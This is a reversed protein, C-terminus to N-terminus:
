PKIKYVTGLGVAGGSETTGYLYGGAYIVGANPIAGDAGGTFNHLITEGGTKLDISYLTGFGSTGGDTTTGYLAGHILLLTSAPNAGDSGGQFSYIVTETGTAKDFKFVTGAGAPGGTLTTGYLSGHDVLGACPNEGDTGGQFSYLIRTKGTAPNFRFITGANASGGLQTTGYVFKGVAILAGSPDVGDTGTGFSHLVTEVGSAPDIKYLAGNYSSTLGGQSVGYFENNFSLLEGYPFAADPPAGFSYVLSGSGTAPDVSFVSGWGGAGNIATGYLTNNLYILGTRPEKGVSAGLSYLLSEAGTAPNIQFVAGNGSVGGGVTTGYLSGAEYFLKAAPQAGDSASGQFSYVTTLQAPKMALAPTALLMAVNMMYFFRTAQM